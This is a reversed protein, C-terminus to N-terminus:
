YIWFYFNLIPFWSFQTVFQFFGTSKNFASWVLLSGILSLFSTNLSVLKLFTKDRTSTFLLTLDGVLLAILTYWCYIKLLLQYKVKV